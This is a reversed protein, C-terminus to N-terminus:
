IIPQSGQIWILYCQLPVTAVVVEWNKIWVLHPYMQYDVEQASLPWKTQCTNQHSELEKVETSRIRILTQNEQFFTKEQNL